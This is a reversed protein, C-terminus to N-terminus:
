MFLCGRVHLMGLLFKHNNSVSFAKDKLRAKVIATGKNIPEVVISSGRSGQQGFSCNFLYLRSVLRQVVLDIHVTIHYQTYDYAHLKDYNSVNKDVFLSLLTEPHHTQSNSSVPLQKM